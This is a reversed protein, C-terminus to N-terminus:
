FRVLSARARPRIVDFRLYVLQFFCVPRQLRVYRVILLDGGVCYAEFFLILRQLLYFVPAFLLEDTLPSAHKTKGLANRTESLCDSDKEGAKISGGGNGQRRHDSM